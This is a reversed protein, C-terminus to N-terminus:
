FSDLYDPTFVIKREISSTSIITGSYITVVGIAVIILILLILNKSFNSM